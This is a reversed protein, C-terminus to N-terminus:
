VSDTLAPLGGVGVGAGVSVSLAFGVLTFEPLAEVMLQDEAFAVDHTAEPAQDPAFAFEPFWDVPGSVVVPLKEKVHVPAPPLTECVVPTVTTPAGGGGGAGVTEMLALGDVTLVPVVDTNVQDDVLAVEQVAEPAQDPVLDVEPLWDLPM